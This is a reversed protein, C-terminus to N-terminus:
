TNLFYVPLVANSYRAERLPRGSEQRAARGSSIGYVRKLLFPHIIKRM